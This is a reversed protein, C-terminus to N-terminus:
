SGSSREVPKADRRVVISFGEAFNELRLAAMLTQRLLEVTYLPVFFSTYGSNYYATLEVVKLGNATCTRSLRAPTCDRYYALFGSNEKKKPSIAFLVGRAVRNGLVRNIVAFPANRCPLYHAMIGGPALIGALNAIAEAPREVHELVARSFVLDFQGPIKAVAVDGVITEDYAGAPALALESESVDLGVVYLGLEQKKELSIAPRKGGGVDLVRLGPKLLGPLVRDRFDRPGDAACAPVLRAMALRERKSLRRNWAIFESILSM